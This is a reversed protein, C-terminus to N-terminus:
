RRHSVAVGRADKWQRVRHERAPWRRQRARARARARGRLFTRLFAHKSKRPPLEPAPVAAPAPALKGKRLELADARSPAITKHTGGQLLTIAAPSEGVVTGRMVSGDKLEIEDDGLHAPVAAPAASAEAPPPAASASSASLTGVILPTVFIAARTLRM